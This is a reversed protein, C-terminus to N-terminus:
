AAPSWNADPALINAPDAGIASLLAVSLADDSWVWRSTTFLWKADADAELAAMATEVLGAVALRRVITYTMVGHRPVPLPAALGGPAQVLLVEALEAESAISTPTGRWDTLAEDDASVYAARASSWLRTEDGSVTWYHDAPDYIM